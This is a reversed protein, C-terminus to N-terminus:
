FSYFQHQVTEVYIMVFRYKVIWKIDTGTILNGKYDTRWNLLDLLQATQSNLPLLKIAKNISLVKMSILKLSLNM